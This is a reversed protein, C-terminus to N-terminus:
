GPRGDGAGMNYRYIRVLGRGLLEPVYRAEVGDEELLPMLLPADGGTLLLALRPYRRSLRRYLAAVELATGGAAGARIATETDHGILPLEGSPEVLPLRATDRALARLRMRVGPSINGGLFVGESVLDCTLATGADVVLVHEGFDMAGVAAAVRDAGLTARSGYEIRLPLPTSPTLEVYREGWMERLGESIGQGDDGVCSYAVGDVDYYVWMMSITEPDVARSGLSAVLREGEFISVKLSSNGIDVTMIRLPREEMGREEIEKVGREVRREGM